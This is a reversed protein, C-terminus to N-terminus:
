LETHSSVIHKRCIISVMFILKGHCLNPKQLWKKDSAGSGGDAISSKSWMFRYSCSQAVTMEKLHLLIGKNEWGDKM